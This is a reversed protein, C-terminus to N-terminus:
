TYLYPVYDCVDTHMLWKGEPQYSTQYVPTNTASITSCQLPATIDVDYAAVYIVCMFAHQLSGDQLVAHLFKVFHSSHKKMHTSCINYMCEILEPFTKRAAPLLSFDKHIQQKLQDAKHELMIKCQRELEKEIQQMVAREARM